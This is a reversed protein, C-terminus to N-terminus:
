FIESNSVCLTNNVSFPLASGIQCRRMGYWVLGYPFVSGYNCALFWFSANSKFIKSFVFDQCPNRYVEFKSRWQCRVRRVEQSLGNCVSISAICCEIWLSFLFILQFAVRNFSVAFYIFLYIIVFFNVSIHEFFCAIIFIADFHRISSVLSKIFHSLIFYLM